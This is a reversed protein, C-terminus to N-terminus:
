RNLMETKRDSGHSSGLWYGIVLTLCTEMLKTDGEGWAMGHGMMHTGYIALIIASVLAPGFQNVAPRHEVRRDPGIRM